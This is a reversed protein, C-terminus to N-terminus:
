PREGLRDQAWELLQEAKGSPMITFLRDGIAALQETPLSGLDGLFKKVGRHFVRLLDDGQVAAYRDLGAVEIMERLTKAHDPLWAFVVKKVKGQAYLKSEPSFTHVEGCRAGYLDLATCGLVKEPCLYQDVWATFSEQVSTSLNKAAMWGAIDIGSYLLILASTNLNHGVCLDIGRGIERLVRGFQALAKTRAPPAM